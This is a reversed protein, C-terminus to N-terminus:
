AGADGITMRTMTDMVACRAKAARRMALAKGADYGLIKEVSAMMERAEDADKGMRQTLFARLRDMRVQSIM